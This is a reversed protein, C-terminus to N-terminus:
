LLSEIKSNELIIINYDSYYLGFTTNDKAILNIVRLKNINM